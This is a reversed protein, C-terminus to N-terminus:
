RVAPLPQNGHAVDLPIDRDYALIGAVPSVRTVPASRVNAIKGVPIIAAAEITRGALQPVSGPQAVPPMYTPSAFYDKASGRITGADVIQGGRVAFGITGMCLCNGSGIAGFMSAAGTFTFMGPKVQILYTRLGSSDEAILPKRAVTIYNALEVPPMAVSDITVDAPRVPRSGIMRRDNPDGRDWDAKDREFNKLEREHKKRAKEFAAQRDNRWMARDEEDVSRLLEIGLPYDSRVVIYAATPDVQVVDKDKYQRFAAGSQSIALQAAIFLLPGM